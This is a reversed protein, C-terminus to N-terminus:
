LDRAVDLASIADWTIQIKSKRRSIFAPDMKAIQALKCSLSMNFPKYSSVSPDVITSQGKCQFVPFQEHPCRPTGWLIVARHLTEGFTCERDSRLCQDSTPWIWLRKKMESSTESGSLTVKQGRHQIARNTCHFLNHLINSQLPCHSMSTELRFETM